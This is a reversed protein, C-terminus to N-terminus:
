QFAHSSFVFENPLWCTHLACSLKHILVVEEPYLDEPQDRPMHETLALVKMGKQIAVKVVEELTDHAHKCFEGSHSHHTFPM